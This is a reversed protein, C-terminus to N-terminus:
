RDDRNAREQAKRRDVEDGLQRLLETASVSLAALIPPLQEIPVGAVKALLKLTEHDRLRGVIHRRAAEEVDAKPAGPHLKLIRSV